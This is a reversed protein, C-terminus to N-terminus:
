ILDRLEKNLKETLDPRGHFQAPTNQFLVIELKNNASRAVLCQIANKTPDINSKGPPIMGVHAHLIYVYEVVSKVDRVMFRYSATPHDKFIPMLASEIEQRGNMQSGDFGICLADNAFLGAFNKADRNNWSQILQQYLNRVSDLATKM